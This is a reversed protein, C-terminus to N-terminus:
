EGEDIELDDEHSMLDHWDEEDYGAFDDQWNEHDEIM